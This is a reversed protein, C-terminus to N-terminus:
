SVREESDRSRRMVIAIVAAAVISPFVRGQSWNIYRPLEVVGLFLIPYILLGTPSSELFSRYLLGLVVGAALMYVLGGPIGYDVFPAALGSSNNFEPTGHETLVDLYAQANDRSGNLVSWLNLSGIGPATWFAALTEYPWRGPFRNYAM